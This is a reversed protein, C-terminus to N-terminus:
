NGFKQLRPDGRDSMIWSAMEVGEQMQIKELDKQTLTRIGRKAEVISFVSPVGTARLAGDTYANFKGNRFRSCFRVPHLTWELSPEFVLDSIAQLLIILAANPTPENVAVIHDDPGFYSEDSNYSNTSEEAEQIEM